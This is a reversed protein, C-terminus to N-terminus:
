RLPDNEPSPERLSVFLRVGDTERLAGDAVKDKAHMDAFRRNGWELSASAWCTYKHPHWDRDPKSCDERLNGCQPCVLEDLALLLDRDDDSADRWEQM